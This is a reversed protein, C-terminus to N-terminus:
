VMIGKKKKTRTHISYYTDALLTHVPNKSLFIHIYEMDVFDKMRPFLVIGYVLLTFVVNFAIWSGVNAFAIAKEVLFKLTFGHTGGKLKLNLEVERKELHLDEALLHSKTLEKTSVFPVHDKIEVGLIYSYEELTLALQYDQFTLCRLHPDYFQVLTHVEMTNVETNLISLLNVYAKKFDEKHDLNLRTGMGKLAKLRPEVYKYSFVSRRGPNM